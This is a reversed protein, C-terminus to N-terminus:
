ATNFHHETLFGAARTAPIAPRSKLPVVEVDADSLDNHVVKVADLSLEPQVASMLPPAAPKPARFPNLKETWSAARVPKPSAPAFIKQTKSALPATVPKPEVAVVEAPTAPKPAFPNKKSNFKPLYVHKSERYAVGGRGSVFSKGAGLLKGFNM